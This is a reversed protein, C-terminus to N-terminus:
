IVKRCRKNGCKCQFSIISTGMEKTYDATIEEGKKINRIAIDCGKV